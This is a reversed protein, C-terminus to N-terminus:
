VYLEGINIRRFRQEFATKGGEMIRCIELRINKEQLCGQEIINAQGAIFDLAHVMEADGNVVINPNHTVIIIQRRKKNERVQKVVLDFILHNDLDDEPQDLVIPEKGYSLLFALIAATKQGPSGQEISVFKSKGPERNYAVNISDEPYWLDLADLMEDTVAKQLHNLFRKDSILIKKEFFPRTSPDSRLLKIKDKMKAFKDCDFPSSLYSLLNDIDDQFGEDRNLLSRLSNEVYKTDGCEGIEIKIFTNNVLVSTVFHKRRETLKKRHKQLKELEISSQNELDDKTKKLNNINALRNEITQRQQVLLGYNEPDDVGEARLRENLKEYKEITIKYGKGWGSGGIASYFESALGAVKSKLISLEDDILKVKRTYEVIMECAERAEPSDDFIDMRPTITEIDIGQVLTNIERLSDHFQNIEKEQSRKIQYDKRVHANEGEELLALRRKIDELEGSLASEEKIEVDLERSKSKLSRYQACIQDHTNKWERYKVEPADDIIGFLAEPRDAMEYIQKQSYIRIPFRVTIEGSSLKLSGDVQKEQISALSGDNAWQVYYTAGDLICEAIVMTKERLVGKDGRKTPIQRFNNFTKFLESKEGLAEIEKERRMVVRLFEVVTSKGSGRGGILCTLWPNFDVRFPAGNGCYQAERIELSKIVFSAHTNPDSQTEDNRILSFDGGDMLALKLGELSPTGMKVWTYASGSEDPKHSDSGIIKSWHAKLEYHKEPFEFSRDVIEACFVNEDRFLKELSNGDNTQKFIGASKDAHAPIAIGGYKVIESFVELESMSTCDKSEGRTGTFRCAALVSTIDDTGKEPGLIALVHIGHIVSIEVGPFIYLERFDSPPNERMKAYVTKLEDIWEGTNHDTVAVCDIGARMYDLLWKEASWAKLSEDGRGYDFSKPTHTHFDFKWWRSGTFDWNNTKM